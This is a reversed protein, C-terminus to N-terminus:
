ALFRRLVEVFIEPKESHGLTRVRQDDGPPEQSCRDMADAYEDQVYESPEGAIWLVPGPYPETGALEDEPWGSLAALDRGLVDLNAQWSWEDGHHRLNQLLFGRVVANPVAKMPCTGLM